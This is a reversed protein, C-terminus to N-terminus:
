INKDLIKFTWPRFIMVYTMFHNVDKERNMMWLITDNLPLVAGATRLIDIFVYFVFM